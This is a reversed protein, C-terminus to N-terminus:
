ILFFLHLIFNQGSAFNATSCCHSLPVRHICLHHKGVNNLTGVQQALPASLEPCILFPSLVTWGCLAKVEALSNIDPIDTVKWDLLPSYSM